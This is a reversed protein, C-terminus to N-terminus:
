QYWSKVKGWSTAVKDKPDVPQVRELGKRMISGIEERSLAREFIFAEDVIGNWERGGLVWNGIRFNSPSAVVPKDSDMQKAHDMKGNLYWTGTKRKRTFVMHNWVGTKLQLFGAGGWTEGNGMAVGIRNLNNDFQEFSIGRFNNHSSLINTWTKQSDRPKAWCGMTWDVTDVVVPANMEVWGKQNFELAQGYKGDVWKAKGAVLRGNYENGSTDAVANGKGEDLRWMAIVGEMNLQADCIEVLPSIVFALFMLLLTFGLVSTEKM